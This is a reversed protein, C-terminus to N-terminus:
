PILVELRWPPKSGQWHRDLLFAQSEPAHNEIIGLWFHVEVVVHSLLRRLVLMRVGFQFGLSEAVKGKLAQM